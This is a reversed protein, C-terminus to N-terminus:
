RSACRSRAASRRGPQTVTSRAASSSSSRRRSRSASASAAASPPSSTTSSRTSASRRSAAGPTPSRSRHGAREAADDPRRRTRAAADGPVRQHDPQPLRPQARVPRRRHLAARAALETDLTLGASEATTQMSEVLESSRRTSTSRSASSRCRGRWTACTTSCASSRPSSASSPPRPLERPVRLDDCMKVILKCSNGINQIPHSLDHVLGIAIRGFMAQREKKRVDEQLEVLRDAMNNFADGLQGLEDTSAVTVREDLRGPRSREPAARSRSSRSSSAAAGSTGSRAADRLARRRDRRRAPAAPPDPIAFAEAMPQEVIVTWGCTRAAARRRRADRRARGRVAGVRDGPGRADGPGAARAPPRLLQRRARGAVERGPRRARAAPRRRHRRARLGRRRRPHPRGDAVARRPEAPRRAVRRRPYRESARRRGGDAALDDDVSFRSM